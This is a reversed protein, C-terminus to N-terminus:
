PWKAHAYLRTTEALRYHMVSGCGDPTALSKSVLECISYVVEDDEMADGSTVEIADAMTFNGPFVAIKQLTLRAHDSLLQYSWDLLAILDRHRPPATRRGHNLLSLRDDLHAALWTLGFATLKAVALEIALAVGDLRRCIEAVLPADADTLDFGEGVATAREVFLEVAAYTLAKAATIRKSEAESPSALPPLVRVREGTVRLAERSTALIRVGPAASGVSEVLRAAADVVHECNDLVLLMRRNRLHPIVDHLPDAVDHDIRLTTALAAPVASPEPVNTLDVFWVGDRYADALATACATAVCTKGIGGPGVITIIRHAVLQGLLSDIFEDRGIVRSLAAPPPSPSATRRPEAPASLEPVHALPAIFRYGRGPDTAILRGDRDGLAKRLAVMQVRLNNPEVCTTPWVEALLENKTVLAGRRAVLSVLIDFARAGVPVPVGDRLLLRQEALLTFRNFAIPGCSASFSVDLQAPDARHRQVRTSQLAERRDAGSAHRSLATSSCMMAPATTLESMEGRFSAAALPVAGDYKLEGRGGGDDPWGM